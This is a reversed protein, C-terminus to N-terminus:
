GAIKKRRIWVFYVPIGAAVMALGIMSNWPEAYVSNAVVLWCGATFLLTTVPHGPIPFAGERTGARDRSRFVFVCVGVCGYFIFDVSVVYNLIAEYRGSVAIAMALLGQLAIAAVPVHTKPHLSGLGKFFLGDSAMAYYVRPATLMGQSLFGLSSVVIGASILLSGREGLAKEVLDAAPTRTAALGEPGLVRVCAWNVSLYLVVVGAVGALLALPLNRKPNKVEGGIFCATQWGGYAFLVPVMAAGFQVWVPRVDPNVPIARSVQPASELLFLGCFVLGAIAGMKLVTLFSQVATGARVGLCNVLTLLGLAAVAVLKGGGGDGLMMGAQDVAVAWEAAGSSRLLKLFYDAFTVSVAAMGGTQVVLLLAWGYLFALLPHFGERFYAYQGGVEPRRAALEAYIMAGILAMVGGAVWAGLILPVTGVELAVAHPNRFIGAGVIGGIVVMSADFLGVRRVLGDAGAADCKDNSPHSQSDDARNM